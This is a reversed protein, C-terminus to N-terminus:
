WPFNACESEQVHAGIPKSGLTHVATPAPYRLTERELSEAAKGIRTKVEAIREVSEINPHAPRRAADYSGGPPPQGGGGAGARNGYLRTPQVM